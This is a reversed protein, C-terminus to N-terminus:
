PISVGSVHCVRMAEALSIKDLVAKWFSLFSTTSGLEPNHNRLVDAHLLFREQLRAWWSSVTSRGIKLQTAISRYSKGLLGLVLALQQAPWSYWRRPPICAPLVSCTQKCEPCYFRQIPVPNLEGSSRDPKRFRTGHYWLFHHGCNSCGGEPRNPKPACLYQVLTEIGPLIFM